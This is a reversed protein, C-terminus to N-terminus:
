RLFRNPLKSLIMFFFSELIGLKIAVAPLMTMIVVKFFCPYIAKYIDNPQNMWGDMQASDM